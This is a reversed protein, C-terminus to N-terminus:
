LADSWTDRRNLKASPVICVIEFIICLSRSDLPDFKALASPKVPYFGSGQAQTSSIPSFLSRSLARGSSNIEKVRM